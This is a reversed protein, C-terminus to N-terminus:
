DSFEFRDTNSVYATEERRARRIKNNCPVQIRYFKKQGKKVYNKKEESFRMCIQTNRVFVIKIM